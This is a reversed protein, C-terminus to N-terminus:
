ENQLNLLSSSKSGCRESNYTHSDGNATSSVSFKFGQRLDYALSLGSWHLPLEQVRLRKRRFAGWELAAGAQCLCGRSMGSRKGKRFQLSDTRPWKYRVTSKDM